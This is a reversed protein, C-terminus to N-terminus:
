RRKRAIFCLGHIRIRREGNKQIAIIEPLIVDTVASFVHPERWFYTESVTLFSALIEIENTKLENSLLWGNFKEVSDFGFEVAALTLNRWLIDWREPPFHLGLRASIVECVSDLGASTLQKKM